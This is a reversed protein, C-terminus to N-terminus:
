TVASVRVGTLIGFRSYGMAPCPNPLSGTAVGAVSLSNAQLTAPNLTNQSSGPMSAGVGTTRVTPVTGTHENLVGMWYLTGKTLVAPTGLVASHREGLATGDVTGFDALLTSPMGESGDSEWIGLRYLSNAQQVTVDITMRDVECDRTPTVATMQLTGSASVQQTGLITWPWLYRGVNPHAVGVAVVLDERAGLEQLAAEAETGTFYGGSDVISVASADHADVADALHDSLDTAIADAYAKVSQQTPILSDSDSVMDDEDVIDSVTLAIGSVANPSIVGAGFLAALGDALDAAEVKFSSGTPDDTIDSVDVVYIVDLADISGVLPSLAAVRSNAM